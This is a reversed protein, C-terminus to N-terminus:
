SATQWQYKTWEFTHLLGADLDHAAQWGLERRAKEVSAFLEFIETRGPRSRQAAEVVPMSRGVVALAKRALDGVSTGQGTGINFTAYAEISNTLRCVSAVADALDEVYCYDRIPRLDSLVVRDSLMAQGLITGVVSESAQRPGYVSFPRLTVSRLSGTRALSELILEAGVKAAAYPSIPRIPHAESVPLFKPRGYVEASSVYILRDVGQDRCADAVMATGEVHTRSYWSPNEFSLRVGAPGALHVVVEAGRVLEKLAELDTIEAQLCDIEAPLPHGVVDPPGTHARVRAKELALKAAVTSGIFGGAGTIAVRLGELLGAM